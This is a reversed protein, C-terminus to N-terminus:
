VRIKRLVFHLLSFRFDAWLCFLWWGFSKRIAARHRLTFQTM